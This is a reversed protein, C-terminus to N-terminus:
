GGKKESKFFDTRKALESYNMKSPDSYFFDQMLLGIAGNARYADNIYITHADDNFEKHALEQITREVHYIPLNACFVANETIFIM